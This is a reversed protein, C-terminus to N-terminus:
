SYSSSPMDAICATAIWSFDICLVERRAAVEVLSLSSLMNGDSGSPPFYTCSYFVSFFLFTGLTILLHM